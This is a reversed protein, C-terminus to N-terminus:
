NSHLFNAAINKSEQSFYFTLHERLNKDSDNALRQDSLDQSRGTEKEWANRFLRINQIMETRTMKSLPKPLPRWLGKYDTIHNNKQKEILLLADKKENKPLLNVIKELDSTSLSHGRVKFLNLAIISKTGSITIHEKIAMKKLEMLSIDTQNKKM